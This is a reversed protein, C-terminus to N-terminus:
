LWWSLWIWGAGPGFHKLLRLGSHAGFTFTGPLRCPLGGGLRIGGAGSM